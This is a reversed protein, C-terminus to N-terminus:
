LRSQLAAVEAPSLKWGDSAAQGLGGERLSIAVGGAEGVSFRVEDVVFDDMPYGALADCFWTRLQTRDFLSSSPSEVRSVWVLDSTVRLELGVARGSVSVAELRLRGDAGWVAESTRGATMMAVPESLLVRASGTETMTPISVRSINAASPKLHRTARRQYLPNRWRWPWTRHETMWRSPLGM